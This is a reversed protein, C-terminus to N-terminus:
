NGWDSYNWAADDDDWIAPNSEVVKEGYLTMTHRAGSTIEHRVREAYIDFNVGTQGDVVHYRSSVEATFMAILHALDANTMVLEVSPRPTQYATVLADCLGSADVPALGDWVSVSPRWSAEGYMAISASTDVTNEARFTGVSTLSQARLQLGTITAGPTGASFSITTSGGSSRSLSVSVTGASLTFDTTVVPTVAGTFPNQPKATVSATGAASLTLTAGYTWVVALSATSRVVVDFAARNVLDSIGNALKFALHYLSGDGLDTDAITHQATQSRATLARYNRGEVALVGDAREYAAASPGETVILQVLADYVTRDDAYWYSLTRGNLVLESDITYDTGDVLGAADFLHEIAAGVTLNTYLPTTVRQSVLQQLRGYASLRVVAAGIEGDEEPTRLRGTFLPLTAQGGVLTTASDLTVVADDLTIDPDGLTGEIKCPRGPIVLGFIPSDGAQSSYRRSTNGLTWEAVPVAAGGTSRGTQRGREVNVTNGNRSPPVRVDDTVDDYDGDYDGSGDWSVLVGYEARDTSM